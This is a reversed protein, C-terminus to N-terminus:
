PTGPGMRMHLSRYETPTMGKIEKFAKNFPSLSGYGMDLAITLVPLHRSEPEVLLRAVERVRYENLFRNFNRYGLHGNILRRLRYEKVGLRDALSRITFGEERFVKEEEMLRGLEDIVLVGAEGGSADIDEPEVSPFIDPSPGRAGRTRLFRMCVGIILVFFVGTTVADSVSSRATGLQYFEKANILLIVIGSVVVSFVRARRRSEVLDSRWDKLAAYLALVVLVTHLAIFPILWLGNDSVDSRLVWHAVGRFDGFTLYHGAVAAAMYALYVWLFSWRWQFDDEFLSKALLWFVFPSALALLNLPIELATWGWELTISFLYTCALCLSLASGLVLSPRHRSEKFLIFALLILMATNGSRFFLDLPLM